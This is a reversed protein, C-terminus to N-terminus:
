KKSSRRDEDPFVSLRKDFTFLQPKGIRLKSFDPHIPNFLYNWESPIVVSPVKLVLSEKVRIWSDGLKMTSLPAPYTNWNRPLKLIDMVMFEELDVPIVVFELDVLDNPGSTHVLIELAALSKSEATYVMPTGPSNWRGGFTAAGEGSFANRVHKKTCIRWVTKM